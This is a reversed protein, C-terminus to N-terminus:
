SNAHSLYSLLFAPFDDKSGGFHMFRDYMTAKLTVDIKYGDLTDPFDLAFPLLMNDQRVESAVVLKIWTQELDWYRARSDTEEFPCSEEGHYYLCYKNMANKRIEEKESEPLEDIDIEYLEKYISDDFHGRGYEYFFKFDEHPNHGLTTGVSYCLFGKTEIPVLDSNMLRKIPEIEDKCELAMTEWHEHNEPLGFRFYMSEHWWWLAENTGEDFPCEEEGKYYISYKLEERKM